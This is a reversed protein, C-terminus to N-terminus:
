TTAMKIAKNGIATDIKLMATAFQSVITIAADATTPIDPM